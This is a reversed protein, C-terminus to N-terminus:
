RDICDHSTKGNEGKQREQEDGTGYGTPDRDLSYEVEVGM